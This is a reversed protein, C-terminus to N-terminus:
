FLSFLGKNKKYEELLQVIQTHNRAKALSEATEKRKNKVGPDAGNALLLKVVAIYGNAAALLIPTNRVNNEADKDAGNDLM